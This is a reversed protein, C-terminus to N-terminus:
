SIKARVPPVPQEAGVVVALRAPFLKVVRMRAGGAVAPFLGRLEEPVFARRVSLRGDAYAFSRRFFLGNLVTVGLYAGWGRHIDALVFGRVATAQVQRLIGRVAHDDLHHLFHNAFVYDVPAFRPFEAAGACVVTLGAEGATWERAWAAVRPDADLATVRLRLGLRRARRLLWVAIDCAGAGLDVLHYARAPDKQMDALVHRRLLTRYRSVLRNIGRFQAVTRMLMAADCDPADMAEAVDLRRSFDPM